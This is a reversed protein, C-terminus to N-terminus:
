HVLNGNAMYCSFLQHQGLSLLFFHHCKSATDSDTQRSPSKNSEYLRPPKARTGQVISMWGLTVLNVTMSVWQLQQKFPKSVSPNCWEAWNGRLQTKNERLLTLETYKPTCKLSQAFCCVPICQMHWLVLRGIRVTGLCSSLLELIGHGIRAPSQNACQPTYLCASLQYWQNLSPPHIHWIKLMCHMCILTHASPKM